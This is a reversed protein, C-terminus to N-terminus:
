APCCQTWTKSSLWLVSTWGIVHEHHITCLDGQGFLFDIHVADQFFMYNPMDLRRQGTHLPCKSVAFSLSGWLGWLSAQWFLQWETKKEIRAAGLVCAGWYPSTLQLHICLSYVYLDYLFRGLGTWNRLSFFHGCWKLDLFVIPGVQTRSVGAFQDFAVHLQVNSWREMVNKRNKSMESTRGIRCRNEIRKPDMDPREVQLRSQARLVESLPMKCRSCQWIQM